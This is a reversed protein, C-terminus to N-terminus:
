LIPSLLRALPAGYRVWAPQLALPKVLEYANEFDTQLMEEVEAAVRPDFFLAMAEFNLRFSRNDLNTTGVAALAQDVVFVKQHMFGDTYRFVKIGAEIIEDFYAFAALWPMKHDIV